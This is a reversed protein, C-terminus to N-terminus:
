IKNIDEIGFYNVLISDVKKQCIDETNTKKLNIISNFIDLNNVENQVINAIAPNRIKKEYKLLNDLAELSCGLVDGHDINFRKVIIKMIGNQILEDLYGENKLCSFNYIAWLCNTKTKSEEENNIIDSLLQFFNNEYLKIIQEQTGAAINSIAFSSEKRIDENIDNYKIDLTKKLADLANSEILKQTYFSDNNMAFNGLIRLSYFIIDSDEMDINQIIKSLMNLEVIKNLINTNGNHTLESIIITSNKLIKINEPYKLIINNIEQILNVSNNILNDTLEKNNRSFIKGLIKLCKNIITPENPFDKILNYINDKLNKNMYKKLINEDTLLVNLYILYNKVLNLNLNKANLLESFIIDLLKDNLKGNIKEDLKLNIKEINILCILSDIKFEEHYDEEIFNFLLNNLVNFIKKPIDKKKEECCLKRMGILGKFQILPDEEKLDKILKYFDNINYEMENCIKYYEETILIKKKENNLKKNDKKDENM